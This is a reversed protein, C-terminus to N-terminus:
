KNGKKRKYRQQQNTQKVEFNWFWPIASKGCADVFRDFERRFVLWFIYNSVRPTPRLKRNRLIRNAQNRSLGRAMMLKKLRKTKM